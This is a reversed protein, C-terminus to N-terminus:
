MDKNGEIDDLFEEFDNNANDQARTKKKKFKEGPGEEMM